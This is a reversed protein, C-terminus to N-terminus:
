LPQPRENNFLGSDGDHLDPDSSRLVSHSQCCSELRMVKALVSRLRAAYNEFSFYTVGPPVSRDSSSLMDVIAKVIGKKDSPNVLRGLEGNLVAERSGDVSSAIVPIGCSMAELYVIGFGEGRSPMVYVDALRYHDAKESEPIFGSFVVRDAIGLTAAKEELRQRDNGDGVILYAVDPVTEVLGPLIELIEDFGKYREHSVLRGLTMLVKKGKLHYRELLYEAKPGTGYRSMDVCNPLIHGKERDLGTWGIFKKRTFDSVAMFFDINRVLKNTLISGTPQWAEIGHIFLGLPAKQIQRCLYALPLLNIHACIVLDFGPGRSVTKKVERVYKLKSGVASSIYTLNEPMAEPADPMLRTIAVVESCNPLDCLATLLDRNFKAIGGRGGFADTVLVLIRFGRGNEAYVRKAWGRLSREGSLVLGEAMWERVPVFFGSKERAKVAEPLPILPTKAMDKKSVPHSTCLLPMLNRMLNLDVFPVRVELSHAMSAWDIDRLLQSRMYWCMELASVKQHAGATMGATEELRTLTQLERWGERVLEGDLFEPLEWPMYMGRRLLYAGGYSSGYELLGAYKPSTFHKVLPASILRFGKGIGPLSALPRTWNVLRPIQRFGPYSGFLEDGGLGSLVVKLGSRAAAMCVFYSNVGDTSPQDMANMMRPLEDRFDTREVMVTTHRAGYIRAVEEALPVEDNTTGSFERFGLTVTHLSGPAVEATLAALTTSDLGSSLFVGVPVDSVLHHRVSDLLTERLQEAVANEDLMVSSEASQQIVDPISCFQKEYKRGHRDITLYCGPSLSRIGRFLTYPEPVCGWLHFGVHGAPDPATDIHGGALLAKVQSAARITKGDDAIYLPKVGFPDRALFLANDRADWIAFAYMGRLEALMTPGKEAYLHLLVETDSKSRFVCGRAELGARLEHHNYIEGNFSIVLRGDASSMPQAGADSLDIIALRRHALGVRGDPSLWMGSGDPGRLTMHDRIRLLEAADVQPADAAYSFIAAIGCM